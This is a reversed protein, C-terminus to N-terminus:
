REDKGAQEPAGGLAKIMDVAGTLRALRLQALQDQAAYLTRQADLVAAVDSAGERYRLEALKLSRQAEDRIASQAEEQGRYRAVNSLADEVEKLATLIAKRYTELLQIRQAESAAVQSRLRGGDFVTQALSATLGLSRTPSALSLLADSALGGSASLQLSPFLAARAAEVNADAARLQAEARALDPRRALVASPLGPAIEPIAIRQLEGEEVAFGQPVRGVLVALASLTQRELVELPQLAARQTLVTARQRSVDLASAAGNRYRVDVIRMLREAIALNDRAIALRARTALLQFYGTAVGGALTLRAADFDHRTGQLSAHAARVGADIRGWLDVEYSIGLSLGTSESASAAGGPADSRRSGANASLNLSPFLSAGASNVAAEAQRIRAAAVALDPSDALAIAILGDLEESGFGHWWAAQPLAGATVPESWAQPLAMDVRTAEGRVACGGLAISALLIAPLHINLRM